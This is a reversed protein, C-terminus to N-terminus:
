CSPVGLLRLLAALTGPDAGPPIRLTAGGPLILELPAAGAGALTVPLLRPTPDSAAAAALRRKWSYFSPASVGEKACFDAVSLNALTFRQLREVWAQRVAPRSRAPATGPHPAPTVASM